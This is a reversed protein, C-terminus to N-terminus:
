RRYLTGWLAHGTGASYVGAVTVLHRAEPASGALGTFYFFVEKMRDKAPNVPLDSLPYLSILFAHARRLGKVVLSLWKFILWPTVSCDPDLDMAAGHFGRYGMVRYRYVMILTGIIAEITYRHFPILQHPLFSFSCEKTDCWFRAIPVLSKQFPFLDIAYRYYESLPRYCTKRGCVPCGDQFVSSFDVTGKLFADKYEWIDNYTNYFSYQINIDKM